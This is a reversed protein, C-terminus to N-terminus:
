ALPYWGNGNNAQGDHSQADFTGFELKIHLLNLRVPCGLFCQGGFIWGKGVVDIVIEGFRRHVLGCALVGHEYALGERLDFSLTLLFIPATM